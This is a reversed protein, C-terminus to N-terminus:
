SAAGSDRNDWIISAIDENNNISTTELRESLPGFLSYIAMKGAKNLFEIEQDRIMIAVSQGHCFTEVRMVGPHFDSVIIGPLLAINCRQCRLSIRHHFDRLIDTM